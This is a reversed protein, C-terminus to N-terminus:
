AAWYKSDLNRWWVFGGGSLLIALTVIIGAVLPLRSSSGESYPGAGGGPGAAIEGDKLVVDPPAAGMAAEAPFLEALSM